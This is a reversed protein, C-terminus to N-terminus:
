KRNARREDESLGASGNALWNGTIWNEKGGEVRLSPESKKEERDDRIVCGSVVCRECERLLLGAGDSDFISCNQVTTRKCKELLVAAPKHWVGKVLLGELKSDECERLVIGNQEKGWNGDVVYRPNRDFDNPGVVVVQCRELLLDHEFGEWFTNGTITAGRVDQLHVNVMVDSFVNGTITLNGEKTPTLDKTSTLGAGIFRINASGPSKSNHQLTCGTIAVEGANGERCDILVNATDPSQSAMNSEIDCTGIHLNRVAGGRTVVGGGGNYSIHCGIVNIQHLNVHDLFVGCGTNAYIHCASVLVNRNLGILHIGHRVQHVICDTITLQMTGKAEIADAEPHEATFEIGRIHPSRQQLWVGPQFTSPAASGAHTGVLRIAPGPGTMVIRASGEGSLSVPGTQDLHIEITATIRYTGKPFIAAGSEIAKQIAATDDTKGDGKAGFERVNAEAWGPLVAFISVAFALHLLLRM